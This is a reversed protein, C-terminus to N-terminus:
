REDRHKHSATLLLLPPQNGTTADERVARTETSTDPKRSRSALCAMGGMVVYLETQYAFSQQRFYHATPLVFVVLFCFFFQWLRTDEGSDWMWVSCLILCTQVLILSFTYNLEMLRWQQFALLLCSSAVKKYRPDAMLTIGHSGVSITVCLGIPLTYDYTQEIKRLCKVLENQCTDQKFGNQPCLHLELNCQTERATRAEQDKQLGWAVLVIVAIFGCVYVCGTWKM